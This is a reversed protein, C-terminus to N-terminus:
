SDRRALQATALLAVALATLMTSIATLTPDIEFRMSEWMRKPLTTADPGGLFVALVVEDFSVLFAFAAAALIAPAVSPVTVHRVTRWWGAGLSRAALELSGDGLRLAAAVIVLVIPTAALTHGLVLAAASGTLRLPAFLFYLGVAMVIAPVVMPSVFFLELTGRWRARGRVLGIAALTGLATSALMVIAAVKLSLLAAEYWRPSAFFRAYWRLSWGQPPFQLFPTSNFSALVIVVIPAVLFVIVLGALGWLLARTM